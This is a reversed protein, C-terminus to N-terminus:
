SEAMARRSLIEDLKSQPKAPAPPQHQTQASEPQNVPATSQVTASATPQEVFAPQASPTIPQPENQISEAPTMQAPSMKPLSIEASSMSQTVPQSITKSSLQAITQQYVSAPLAGAVFLGILTKKVQPLSCQSRAVLDDITLSRAELVCQIKLHDHQDADHTPKVWRDIHYNIQSDLLGEFKQGHTSALGWLWQVLNTATKVDLQKAAADDALSIIWPQNFLIHESVEWVRQQKPNIYAFLTGAPSKISLVENHRQAIQSFIKAFGILYEDNVTGNATTSLGMSQSPEALQSPANHTHSTTVASVQASQAVGSSPNAIQAPPNSAVRQNAITDTASQYAHAVDATLKAATSAKNRVPLGSLFPLQSFLWESLPELDKLPLVLLDQSLYGNETESRATYITATNPKSNILKQVSEAHRFDHNVMFLDIQQNNASVWELDAELRLLIRLYGKLMVQDGPKIGVLAIRMVKKLRVSASTVNM